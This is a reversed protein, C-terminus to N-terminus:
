YVSNRTNSCYQSKIIEFELNAYFLKYEPL